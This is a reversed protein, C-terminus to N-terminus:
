KSYKEVLLNMNEGCEDKFKIWIESGRGLKPAVKKYVDQGFLTALRILVVMAGPNGQAREELMDHLIEGKKM